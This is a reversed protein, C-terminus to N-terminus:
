KIEVSKLMQAMSNLCVVIMVTHKMVIYQWWVLWYIDNTESENLCNTGNRNIGVFEIDVVDDNNDNNSAYITENANIEAAVYTEGDSIVFVPNLNETGWNEDTSLWM